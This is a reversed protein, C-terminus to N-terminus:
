MEAPPQLAFSTTYQTYPKDNLEALILSDGAACDGAGLVIVFGNGDDDLTATVAKGGAREKGDYIWHLKPKTKCRSLLNGANIIVRKQAGDSFETEVITAFTFQAGEVQHAPLTFAGSPTTVPPLVDFTTTVTKHTANPTASIETAGAKCGVSWVIATANGFEDLTVDFSHGATPVYPAPAAWELQGGCREYLRMDELTVTEGAAESCHVEIVDGISGASKNLGQLTFSPLSGVECEGSAAQSAAPVWFAVTAALVAALLCSTRLSSM